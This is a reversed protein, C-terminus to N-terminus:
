DSAEFAECGDAPKWEEWGPSSIKPAYELTKQFFLNFFMFLPKAKIILIRTPKDPNLNFHQHVCGNRVIAVDGAQWDVRKGDHVEYGKGELIYLLAGNMHGHKASKGGPAQVEIHSVMAQTAVGLLRPDICWKNFHVPGGRMPKEKSHFVRPQAYVDRILESYKGHVSRVFTRDLQSDPNLPVKDEEM